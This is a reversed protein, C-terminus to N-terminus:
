RWEPVLSVGDSNHFMRSRIRRQDERGGGQYWRYATRITSCGQGFAANIKEDAEKARTGLKFEYLYIGRIVMKDMLVDLRGFTQVTGDVIEKMVEEERLDGRIVLIRKEDGGNEKLVM